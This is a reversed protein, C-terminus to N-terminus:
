CETKAGFFIGLQITMWIIPTHKLLTVVRVELLESCKSDQSRPSQFADVNGSATQSVATCGPTRSSPHSPPSGPKPASALGDAEKGAAAPHTCRM